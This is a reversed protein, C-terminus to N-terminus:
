ARCKDKKDKNGDIVGRYLYPSLCKSAPLGQGVRLQNIDM